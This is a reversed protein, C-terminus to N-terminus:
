EIILRKTMQGNDTSITIFYIGSPLELYENIKNTRGYSKVDVVRGLNDIIFVQVDNIEEEFQINLEGSTPNPFISFDLGSVVINKTSTSFDGTNLELRSSYATQGDYMAYARIFYRKNEEFENINIRFEGKQENVTLRVSNLDPTYITDWVFGTETIQQTGRLPMNGRFSFTGEQVDELMLTVVPPLVHGNRALYAERSALVLHNNDFRKQEMFEMLNDAVSNSRKNFIMKIIDQYFTYFRLRHKNGSEQITRILERELSPITFGLDDFIDEMVAVMWSDLSDTFMPHDVDLDVMADISTEFDACFEVVAATSIGNDLFYEYLETYTNRIAEYTNTHRGFYSDHLARRFEFNHLDYFIEIFIIEEYRIIEDIFLDDDEIDYIVDEFMEGFYPSGLYFEDDLRDDVEDLFDKFANYKEESTFFQDLYWPYTNKLVEYTSNNDSRNQQQGIFEESSVLRGNEYNREFLRGDMKSVISTGCRVGAKFIASETSLLIGNPDRIEIKVPGDFQGNVRKGTTVRTTGEADIPHTVRYTVHGDLGDDTHVVDPLANPIIFYGGCSAFLFAFSLFFLLNYFFNIKKM